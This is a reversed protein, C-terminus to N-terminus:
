HVPVRSAKPEGGRGPGALTGGGGPEADGAGPAPPGLVPEETVGRAAALGSLADAAARLATMRSLTDQAAAAARNGLARAVPLARAVSQGHGQETELAEALRGTTAAWRNLTLNLAEIERLADEVARAAELVRATVGEVSAMAERTGSQMGEVLSGMRRSADAFQESLRQVEDAVVSFGRESSTVAAQIAANLALINAQEAMDDIRAVLDGTAQCSEGVRKLRKTADQLAERSADVAHATAQVQSRGGDAAETAQGALVRGEQAVPLVIGLASELHQGAVVAGDLVPGERRVAGLLAQAAIRTAGASLRVRGAMANVQTTFERMRDALRNIVRALEGTFEDTVTLTVDLDGDALRNTEDLLRLIATQHRRRDGQLDTERGEAGVPVPLAFAEEPSPRGKGLRAALFLGLVTFLLGVGAFASALVPSVLRRGAWSRYADRLDLVSRGLIDASKVAAMALQQLRALAGGGDVASEHRVPDGAMAGLLEELLGRAESDAVPEIGLNEDGGLLAQTVQRFHMVDRDFHEGAQAAGAGGMLARQLNHALRELLMLQRTAHYVQEPSAGTEVMVNVLEDCKLLTKTAFGEFRALTAYTDAVAPLLALVQAVTGETQRWDAELAGLQPSLEHPLPPLGDGPVGGRLAALGTAFRKRATSLAESVGTDGRAAQVVYRSIAEATLRQEALTAEYGQDRQSFAATGYCTVAALVAMLAALTLVAYLPRASSLPASHEPSIV